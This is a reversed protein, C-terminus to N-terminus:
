IRMDDFIQYVIRESKAAEHMTYIPRENKEIVAVANNVLNSLASAHDINQKSEESLRRGLPVGVNSSVIFKRFRLHDNDIIFRGTRTFIDLEFHTYQREDLAQLYFQDCHEYQMFVSLTPDDKKYDTRSALVNWSIPEGFLLRGLDIAHCGNHKFGKAYRITATIVGDRLCWERLNKYIDIYRRPYNVLIPIGAMKYQEILQMTKASDTTCPKELIILKPKYELMRELFVAHQEDPVCISIIDPVSITMLEEIRSYGDCAWRRTADILRHSDSEVISTLNIRPHLSLIQAHSVLSPEGELGSGMVGAGIVAATLM